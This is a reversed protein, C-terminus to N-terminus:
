KMQFDQLPFAKSPVWVYHWWENVYIEFGAYQEMLGRLLERNAIVEAPLQDYGHWAKEGFYDFATPMALEQGTARDILTLDIAGGRNHVSGNTPDAVYTPDPFIEWMLYQIARPRYGDWIKIGLGEPYSIGNFGTIKKLSDQVLILRRVAGHVLLCENITYLKQGTFNDRSSYKLDLVIDPILERVNVLEDDASQALLIAPLFLIITLWRMSM